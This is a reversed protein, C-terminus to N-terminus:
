VFLKTYYDKEEIKNLKNEIGWEWKVPNYFTYERINDLSKDNRIIHDYFSKQWAFYTKSDRNSNIQRTVSAKYQQIIKPILMQTKDNDQLSRM